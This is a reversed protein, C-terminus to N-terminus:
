PGASARRGLRSTLVSSHAADCRNCGGRRTPKPVHAWATCSLSLGNHPGFYDCAVLLADPRCLRSARLVVLLMQPKAVHSKPVLAARVTAAEPARSKPAAHICTDSNEGGILLCASCRRRAPSSRCAAPAAVRQRHIALGFLTTAISANRSVANSCAPGLM